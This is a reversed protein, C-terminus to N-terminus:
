VHALEVLGPAEDSISEQRLVPCTERRNYTTVGLYCLCRLLTSTGTQAIVYSRGWFSAMARFRKSSALVLLAAFAEQIVQLNIAPMRPAPVAVRNRSM